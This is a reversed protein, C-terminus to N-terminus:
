MVQARRFAGSLIWHIKRVTWAALPRCKHATCRSDCKHPGRIRHDIHGPKGDCHDRCRLREAYLAEDQMSLVLVRVNPHDSRIWRVLEIGDREPDRGLCAVSERVVEALEATSREDSESAFGLM